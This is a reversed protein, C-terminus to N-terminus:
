NSPDEPDAGLREWVGKWHGDVPADDSVKVVTKTAGMSPLLESVAHNLGLTVKIQPPTPVYVELEDRYVPVADPTGSCRTRDVWGEGLLHLINGVAVSAQNWGIHGAKIAGTEAVDGIAFIKKQIPTSASLLQLTPSVSIYGKSNTSSPLFSHLLSSNPTQGTCRLLLDYEIEGGDSKKVKRTEGEREQKLLAEDGPSNLREGLVVDVGLEKLRRTVENHVEIDYLPLFRDRSHVLTIKKPTRPTDSPPLLHAHAPTSYLDAIDTAYQLGLAGGGIILISSSKEILAQQAQLFAVGSKKNRAPSVLPAPLTSGLAYILYDWSVTRSGVETSEADSDEEAALGMGQLVDALDDASSDEYENKTLDRDLTVYGEHISTVGAHIFISRPKSPESTTPSPPEASLLESTASTSPSPLHILAPLSPSLIVNDYPIFAKHAQNPVVGLRPFLYLHNFHSQRDILVVRHSSPLSNALLEAARCGAYSGGLVLVNKVRRAATVM